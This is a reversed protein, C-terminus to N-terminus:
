FGDAYQLYFGEIKAKSSIRKRDDRACDILYFPTELTSTLEFVTSFELISHSFFPNSRVLGRAATPFVLPMAAGESSTDVIKLDM